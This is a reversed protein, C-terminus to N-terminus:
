EESGLGALDRAEAGMAEDYAKKQDDDLEPEGAKRRAAAERALTKNNKRGKPRGRKPKEQLKKITAEAAELKDKLEATEANTRQTHEALSAQVRNEILKQLVDPDIQAQQSEGPAGPHSWQPKDQVGLSINEIQQAAEKDNRSYTLIEDLMAESVPVLLMRKRRGSHKFTAGPRMDPKTLRIGVGYQGHFAYGGQRLKAKVDVLNLKTHNIPM